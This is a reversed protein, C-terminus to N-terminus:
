RAAIWQSKQDTISVQSASEYGLLTTFASEAGTNITAGASLSFVTSTAGTATNAQAIAGNLNAM